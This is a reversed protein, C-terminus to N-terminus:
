KRRRLFSFWRKKPPKQPEKSKSEMKKNKRRKQWQIFERGNILEDYTTESSLFAHPDIYYVKGDEGVGYNTSFLRSDTVDDDAYSVPKWNKTAQEKLSPSAFSEFLIDCIREKLKVVESLHKSSIKKVEPISLLIGFGGLPGTEEYVLFKSGPPYVGNDRLFRFFEATAEAEERSGFRFFGTKVYVVKKGQPSAIEMRIIKRTPSSIKTKMNTAM